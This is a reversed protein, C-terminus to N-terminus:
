LKCDQLTQTILNDSFEGTLITFNSTSDMLNFSYAAVSFEYYTFPILDSFTISLVNDSVNLVTINSDDLTSVDIEVPLTANTSVYYGEIIGHAREPEMWNLVITRETPTTTVNIPPTAPAPDTRVTINDTYNGPGVSTYARVRIVYESHFELNTLEIVFPTETFSDATFNVSSVNNDTVLTYEVEYEIIIGNPELPTSWEVAITSLNLEDATFSNVVGPVIFFFLCVFICNIM